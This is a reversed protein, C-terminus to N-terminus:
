GFYLPSGSGLFPRAIIVPNGHERFHRSPPYLIGLKIALNKVDSSEKDGKSHNAHGLDPAFDASELPKMAAGVVWRLLM